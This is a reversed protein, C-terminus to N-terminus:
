GFRSTSLQRFPLKSLRYEPSAPLLRWCRRVRAL